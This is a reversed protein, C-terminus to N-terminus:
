ASPRRGFEDIVQSFEAPRELNLVHGADAFIKLEAGPIARAIERAAPLNPWDRSGCLVLTPLHLRHLTGRFDAQAAAHMAQLLAPKGTLAADDRAAQLLAEDRTPLDRALSARLPKEPMLRFLIQQFAMLAVPPHVQPASLILRSVADPADLAIQLAVLAGLSLGCLSAPGAARSRILDAVGAAAGALTFPVQAASRAFGPLDPALVHFDPALARCQPQWMRHALGLGHLLVLAPRGPVGFEACFLPM